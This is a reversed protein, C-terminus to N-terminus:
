AESNGAVLLSATQLLAYLKTFWAALPSPSSLLSDSFNEIARM